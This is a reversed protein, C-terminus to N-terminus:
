PCNKDLREAMNKDVLEDIIKTFNNIKESNALIRIQESMQKKQEKSLGGQKLQEKLARIKEATNGLPETQQKNAKTNAKTKAKIPKEFKSSYQNIFAKVLAPPLNKGVMGSVIPPIQEDSIGAKKLENIAWFLPKNLPQVEAPVKSDLIEQTLAIFDNGIQSVTNKQDATLGETGSGDFAVGPSNRIADDVAQNVQELNVAKAVDLKTVGNALALAIRKKGDIVRGNEDLVPPMGYKDEFQMTGNKMQEAMDTITTDRTGDENLPTIVDPDTLDITDANFLGKNAIENAQETTFLDAPTTSKAYAVMENADVGRDKLWYGNEIQKMANTASKGMNLAAILIQSDMTEKSQPNALVSAAENAKAAEIGWQVASAGQLNKNQATKVFPEITNVFAKLNTAESETIHGKSQMQDIRGFFGEKNKIGDSLAQAQMPTNVVSYNAVGGFIGGTIGGIITSEIADAMTKQTDFTPKNPIEKTLGLKYAEVQDKYKKLNESYDMAADAWTNAFEEGGEGFIDKAVKLGYEKFNRGATGNLAKKVLQREAVGEFPVFPSVFAEISLGVATHKLAQGIADVPNYGEQLKQKYYGDFMLPAFSPMQNVMNETYAGIYPSGKELFKGVTNMLKGTNNYVAGRLANVSAAQSSSKIADAFNRKLAADTILKGGKTELASVMSESALMPNGLMMSALMPGMEGISQEVQGLIDNPTWEQRKSSGFWPRDSRIKAGEEGVEQLWKSGTLDGLKKVGFATNMALMPGLKAVAGIGTEAGKLIPSGANEGQTNINLLKEINSVDYAKGYLKNSVVARTIQSIDPKAIGNRKADNYAKAIELKTEDTLERKGDKIRYVDQSSVGEADSPREFLNRIAGTVVGSTNHFEDEAKSSMDLLESESFPSTKQAYPDVFPNFKPTYASLNGISLKNALDQDEQQYRKNQEQFQGLQNFGETTPQLVSPVQPFKTAGLINPNIVGETKSWRDIVDQTRKQSEKQRQASGKAIESAIKELPM